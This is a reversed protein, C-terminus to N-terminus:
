MYSHIQEKSIIKSPKNSMATAAVLAWVLAVPRVCGARAPAMAVAFVRRDACPLVLPTTRGVTTVMEVMEAGVKEVGVAAGVGTGM